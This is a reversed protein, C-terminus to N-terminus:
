SERTLLRELLSEIEDRFDSKDFQKLYELAKQYHFRIKLRTDKLVMLDEYMQHVKNVDDTTLFTKKRLSVLYEKQVSDARSLATLFLYTMKGEYIDGGKRKGFRDPDATVDLLDDQIQFAIGTEYGLRGLLQRDDYSAGAIIAGLRFASSILAATKQEVMAMYHNITINYDDQYELDLAQGRCVTIVADLFEKELELFMEKSYRLDTGYHHLQKLAHAFMADGSLIATSTDWKKFVSPQGRRTEAKDMIDDHILTFNHLMELALAAPVAEEPDKGCLGCAMLVIRPRIRKGGLGLTYRIPDYLIGPQQPIPLSRLNEEILDTLYNLSSIM